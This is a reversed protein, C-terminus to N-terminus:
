QEKRSDRIMCVWPAFSAILFAASLIYGLTEYFSNRGMLRLACIVMAM